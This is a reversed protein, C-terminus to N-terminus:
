QDGVVNHTSYLNSFQVLYIGQKFIMKKSLVERAVHDSIAGLRM